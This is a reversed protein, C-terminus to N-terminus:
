WREVHGREPPHRLEPTERRLILVSRIGHVIEGFCDQVFKEGDFLKWGGRFAFARAAVAQEIMKGSGNQKLAGGMQAFEGPKTVTRGAFDEFFIWLVRNM